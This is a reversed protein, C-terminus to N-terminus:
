TIINEAIINNKGPWDLGDLFRSKCYTCVMKSKILIKLNILIQQVIIQNVM